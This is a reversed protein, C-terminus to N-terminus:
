KNIERKRKIGVKIGKIGEKNKKVVEGIKEHSTLLRDDPNRIVRKEIKDSVRIKPTTSVCENTM